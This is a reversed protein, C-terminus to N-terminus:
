KSRVLAIVDTVLLQMEMTVHKQEKPKHIGVSLPVHPQVSLDQSLLVTMLADMTILTTETMVLKQLKETETEVTRDALELEEETALIDQSSRAPQHAGMVQFLMLMM